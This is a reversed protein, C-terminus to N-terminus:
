DAQYSSALQRVAYKKRLIDSYNENIYRQVDDRIGDNDSDVGGITANNKKSDPKPVEISRDVIFRVYDLFKARYLHENKNKKIRFRLTYSIFAQLFNHSKLICNM